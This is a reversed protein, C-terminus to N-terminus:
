RSGCFNDGTSFLFGCFLVGGFNVGKLLLFFEAKLLSKGSPHFVNYKFLFLLM